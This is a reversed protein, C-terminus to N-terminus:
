KLLKFLITITLALQGLLFPILWKLLDFKIREIRTELRSEMERMESRVAAIEERMESRVAAFEERMESRLAAIDAKTDFRLAAIDEKAAVDALRAEQLEQVIAVMAKAQKEPMDAATLTEYAKLTDLTPM